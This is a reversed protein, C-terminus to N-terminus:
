KFVAEYGEKLENVYESAKEAAMSNKVDELSAIDETINNKEMYEKAEEDSPMNRKVLEDTYDSAYFGEQLFPKINEPTAYKGYFKKFYDEIKNGSGDLSSNIKDIFDTYEKEVDVTFGEKNGLENLAKITKIQDIACNTFYEGFTQENDYNQDTIDTNSDVGMYEFASSYTNIYSNSFSNYYYDFELRSIDEGNVTIYPADTAKYKKQVESYVIFVVLALFAAILLGLLVRLLMMQKKDKKKAKEKNAMKEDYKTM